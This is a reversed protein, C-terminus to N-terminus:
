NNEEFWYGIQHYFPDWEHQFSIEGHKGPNQNWTYMNWWKLHVYKMMEEHLM